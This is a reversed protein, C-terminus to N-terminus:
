IMKVQSKFKVTEFQFYSDLLKKKKKILLM